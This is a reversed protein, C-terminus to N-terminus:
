KDGHSRSYRDHRRRTGGSGGAFFRVGRGGGSVGPLLGGGSAGCLGSDGAGGGFTIQEEEVRNVNLYCEHVKKTCHSPHGCSEDVFLSECEVKSM